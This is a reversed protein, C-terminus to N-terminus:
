KKSQRDLEAGFFHAAAKLIDNARRLEANERKLRKLEALLAPPELPTRLRCLANLFDPQETVYQAKSEYFGSTTEVTGLGEQTHPPSHSSHADLHSRSCSMCWKCVCVLMCARVEELAAVAKRLNGVRDGLNSGLAVYVRSSKHRRRQQGVAALTDAEM